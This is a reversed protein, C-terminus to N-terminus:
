VHDHTSGSFSLEIRNHGDIYSYHVIDALKKILAVKM